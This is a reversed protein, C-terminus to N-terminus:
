GLPSGRKDRRLMGALDKMQRVFSLAILQVVGGRVGRPCLRSEYRPLLKRASFTERCSSPRARTLPFSLFRLSKQEM